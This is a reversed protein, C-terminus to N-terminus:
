DFTVVPRNNRQLRRAREISDENSIINLRDGVSINSMGAVVVEDGPALGESVEVVAGSATGTEIRVLEAQKYGNGNEQPKAVFVNLHEEDRIIATRPIILADEITRRKLRLNVVMDPKLFADPNDLEIEVQYTRLDPNITNGAFSIEDEIQGRGYAAMDILATSGVTIESSYREPVGSTLRVRSGNVLRVVPMGPSILEGSNILRQEVRGDFPARITADQLAKRAQDLQAKAADRETRAARFDQVSVVEDEFLPELRNVTEDAFEYSAEAADLNARLMRKDLEAIVDGRKLVTGRDVISLVQAGVEASIVADDIAEVSGSIRIFDDFGDPRLTITEVAIERVRERSEDNEDEGNLPVDGNCGALALVLLAPMMMFFSFRKVSAYM